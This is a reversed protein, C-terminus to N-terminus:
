FNKNFKELRHIIKQTISFAHDFIFFHDGPYRYCEFDLSTYESWAEIGEYNMRTDDIGGFATVPCSLNKKESHQFKYTDCLMFDNRIIPLLLDMLEDNEIIEIRTGSLSVLEKKLDQDNLGHREFHPLKIHPAIHGSVFLHNVREGLRKATEYALLAGMSHGFLSINIKNNRDITNALEDAAESLSAPFQACWGNRGPLMVSKFDVEDPFYQNFIRYQNPSGGAHPCCIIINDCDTKHSLDVLKIAM